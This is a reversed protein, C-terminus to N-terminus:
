IFRGDELISLNRLTLLWYLCVCTEILRKGGVRLLQWDLVASRSSSPGLGRSRRGGGYYLVSSFFKTVLASKYAIIIIVYM